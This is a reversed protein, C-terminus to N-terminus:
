SNRKSQYAKKLAESVLKIKKKPQCYFPGLMKEDDKIFKVGGKAALYCKEAVEKETLGACPKIITGLIPDPLKTETRDM